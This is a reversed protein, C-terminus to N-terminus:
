AKEKIFNVHNHLSGDESIIVGILMNVDSIDVNLVTLSIHIPTKLKRSIVLSESKLHNFHVIWKRTWDSTKLIDQQQNVAATDPHDVIVYLSTDDAFLRINLQIKFVIDNIFIM